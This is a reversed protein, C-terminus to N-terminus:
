CEIVWPVGRRCRGCWTAWFDLLVVKGKYDSLRVTKGDADKLGFEPAPKRENDAKVFSDAAKVANFLNCGGLALSCAVGLVIMSRSRMASVFESGRGGNYRSKMSWNLRSSGRAALKAPPRLYRSSKAVVSVLSCGPARTASARASM